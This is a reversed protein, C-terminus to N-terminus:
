IRYFLRVKEKSFATGLTQDIYDKEEKTIWPHVEPTDYVVCYWILTMVITLVAPVYFAYSWGAQEILIGVLPWTIVTGFTGGMLSAIFKGKEDPPAWRSIISHLAPYIPGASAGTLARAAVVWGLGMNASLPVVLTTLLSAIMSLGM